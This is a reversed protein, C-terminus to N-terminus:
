ANEAPLELFGALVQLARDLLELALVGLEFLQLADSFIEDDVDRVLQARRQGRDLAVRFRKHVSREFIM